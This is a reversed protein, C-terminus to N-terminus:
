KQDNTYLEELKKIVGPEVKEVATAAQELASRYEYNRFSEEASNLSEALGADKSRYRNGYQIVKETLLVNEILENTKEYFHEVTDIAQDLYSQISKMNLPKENLSRIVDDINEQTQELLASYDSPLGPVNSKMVLRSAESVKKKLEGLKERADIEDKRLTQLHETYQRQEEKIGELIQHIEKLETRLYTFASQSEGIKVLLIEYRKFLSSIKKELEIPIVLEEDLLQYGQQVFNTEQKIVENAERIEKLLQTTKEENQLVYHKAHVEKELLDYLIEISDKINSIGEEVEKTELKEIYALYSEIDDRIRKVEKEIHLHDLNYGQAEMEKFGSEVENLQSPILTQCDTLLAPIIEMNHLLKDSEENLILVVERAELYNGNETLDHFHDIKESLEDMKAEMIKATEGFTHRHALLHKKGRQFDAQLEEIELRNKEESGILEKLEKLIEEMKEEIKQLTSTIKNQMEKAKNFRFKDTYEETDFLLEEVNPLDVAVIEDWRQRWSEFMEETQGTMNLQKVKSLEDVIPRNMIDVKWAELRDVEQYYKRRFIFATICLIIVLIIGGIVYEM